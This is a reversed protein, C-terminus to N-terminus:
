TSVAKRKSAERRTKPPSHRALPVNKSATTPVNRRPSIAPKQIMPKSPAVSPAVSAKVGVKNTRRSNVLVNKKKPASAKKPAANTSQPMPQSTSKSGDFIGQEILEGFTKDGLASGNKSNKTNSSPNTAQNVAGPLVEKSKKKGLATIRERIEPSWDTEDRLM